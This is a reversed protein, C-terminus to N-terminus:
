KIYYILWHDDIYRNNFKRANAELALFEFGLRDYFIKAAINNSAVALMLQEINYNQAYHILYNMLQHGLNKGRYQPTVYLGQITAKHSKSTYPSFNLQVFGVLIDNEFAGFFVQNRHHDPHLLSTINEETFDSRENIEHVFAIPHLQFAECTLQYFAKAHSDNLLQIM